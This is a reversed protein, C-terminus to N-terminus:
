STAGTPLADRIQRALSTDRDEPGRRVPKTEENKFFLGTWGNTISREIRAISEALGVAALKKLQLDVTSPKLPEKIERRYKGWSAWADRFEPTDLNSPLSLTEPEGAGSPTEQEQEQEQEQNPLPNGFPKRCSKAFADQFGKSFGKLYAELREYAELKLPCEPIEDWAVAWSKVVNPNAPENYRVANPVWVVHADWDAKAMGERLVERFAERFGKLPWGLQEAFAAEGIVSLGPIIGTQRGALLHWWLAQGCPPCASLRRYKEDGHIRLDIKRHRAM